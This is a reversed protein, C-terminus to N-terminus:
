PVGIELQAFDAVTDDETWLGVTGKSYREDRVQMVENGDYTVVIRERERRVALTHWTGPEPPEITAFRIDRRKGYIIYHLAIEDKEGCVRVLYGNRGKADLQFMLGASPDIEGSVIRFRVSATVTQLTPREFRLFHFAVGEDALSQRVARGGPATSDAVVAWTGGHVSTRAPPGGLTDAEFAFTWLKVRSSKARDARAPAAAASLLVLTMAAVALSRM